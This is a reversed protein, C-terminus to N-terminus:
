PIVKAHVEDTYSDVPPEEDTLDIALGIAADKTKAEVEIEYKSVITVTVQWKSLKPESSLTRDTAM